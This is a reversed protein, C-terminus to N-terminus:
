EGHGSAEGVYELANKRRYESPTKGYAKRFVRSFHAPASFGWRYCIESITQQAFLPSTLDGRCRELRRQRVYGSFSRGVRSFNDQLYRTTVGHVEAVQSVTLDIDQLLLEITQCIRHLNEEYSNNSAGALSVGGEDIACAILFEMFSQDLLRLQDGELEAIEEAISVLMDSYIRRIGSDAPLYGLRQSLPTIFRENLVPTPVNIFAQRFRTKLSLTAKAGGTVGYIIDGANVNIHEGRFKLQASGELLVSLWLADPQRPFDGDFDQAGAEVVAFRIGMPSILCDIQGEFDDDNSIDGIPLSLRAIAERWASVRKSQPVSNTSFRWAKRM